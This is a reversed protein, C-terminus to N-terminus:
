FSSLSALYEYHAPPARPSILRSIAHLAVVVTPIDDASGIVPLSCLVSLAFLIALSLVSCVPCVHTGAQGSDLDSLFHIQAGLLLVLLLLGVMRGHVLVSPM